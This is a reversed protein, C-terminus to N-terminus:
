RTITEGSRQFREQMLRSCARQGSFYLFILAQEESSVNVTPKLLGDTQLADVFLRFVPLDM